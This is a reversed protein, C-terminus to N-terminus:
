KEAPPSHAASIQAATAAAHRGPQGPRAGMLQDWWVPKRWCWRGLLPSCCRGRGTAGRARWGGASPPASWPSAPGRFVITGLNARDTWGVVRRAPRGSSPTGTGATRYTVDGTGATRHTVDGTAAARHAVDVTGVTRHTVDGTAAARHTVDVTGVTRHTVDCPTQEISSYRYQSPDRSRTIQTRFESKTKHYWVLM